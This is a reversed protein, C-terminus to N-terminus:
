RNNLPTSWFRATSTTIRPSDSPGGDVEDVHQVVNSSQDENAAGIEQGHEVFRLAVGQGHQEETQM